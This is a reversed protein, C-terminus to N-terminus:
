TIKETWTSYLMIFWAPVITFSGLFIVEIIRLILKLPNFLAIIEKILGYFHCVDEIRTLTSWASYAVAIIENVTITGKQIDEWLKQLDRVIDNLREVDDACRSEVTENKQLGHVFGDAFEVVSWHELNNPTM